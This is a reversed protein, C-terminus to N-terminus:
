RLLLQQLHVQRVASLHSFVLVPQRSLPRLTVKQRRRCGSRAREKEELVRRLLWTEEM